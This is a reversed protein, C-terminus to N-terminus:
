SIGQQPATNMSQDFEDSKVNQKHSGIQLMALVDNYPQM